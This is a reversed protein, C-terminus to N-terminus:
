AAPLQPRRRELSPQDVDVATSEVDDYGTAAGAGFRIARLLLTSRLHRAIATRLAARTPPLLLALGLLDTVFGPILLALGGALGLAGDLVEAAPARGEALAASLRRVAARGRSRLAWSGVPWSAAILLLTLLVGIAEAVKIAVFVEVVPWLILLLVWVM